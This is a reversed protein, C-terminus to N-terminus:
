TEVVESAAMPLRLTARTLAKAITLGIGTGDTLQEDVRYFREFVRDLDEEALGRGDDSVTVTVHADDREVSVGVSGDDTYQIANGIM